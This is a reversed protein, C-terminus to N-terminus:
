PLRCLTRAPPRQEVETGGRCGCCKGVVTLDKAALRLASSAAAASSGGVPQELCKAVGMDCVKATGHADLLVNPTKIDRHLIKNMHLHNIGLTVQVFILLSEELFVGQHAVEGAALMDMRDMILNEVNRPALRLVIFFSKHPHSGKSRVTHEFSGCCEVIFPHHIKALIASETKAYLEAVSMPGDPFDFRKLAFSEGVAMGVRPSGQFTVILVSAQGGVKHLGNPVIKFNSLSLPPPPLGAMVVPTKRPLMTLM